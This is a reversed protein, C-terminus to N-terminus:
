KGNDETRENGGSIDKRFPKALLRDIDFKRSTYYKIRQHDNGYLAKSQKLEYWIKNEAKSRNELQNIITFADEFLGIKALGQILIVTDERDLMQVAQLNLIFKQYNKWVKSSPNQNLQNLIALNESQMEKSM